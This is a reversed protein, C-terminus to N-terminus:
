DHVDVEADIAAELYSTDNHSKDVQYDPDCKKCDPLAWIENKSAERVNGATKVAPCEEPDDTTHLVPGTGGPGIIRYYGTMSDTM